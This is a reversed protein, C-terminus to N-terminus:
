KMNFGGSDGHSGLDNQSSVTLPTLGLAVDDDIFDKVVRFVQQPDTHYRDFSLEHYVFLSIVAFCIM